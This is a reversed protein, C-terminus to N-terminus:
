VDVYYKGTKMAQVVLANAIVLDDHNTGNGRKNSLKNNLEIFIQMQQLTEKCNILIMGKEFQEKFDSIMIAKNATTTQWGLQLKRKGREDFIRQKYLNLYGHDKRLRELLPLGYSNRECCIFAYGYYKGLANVVEAFEYVPVKNNFFSAVQEGEANYIAITSYDGSGGSAVDIGGFYKGRKPLRFLFLSKGLYPKLLDPVDVIEDKPISPLLYNMRELIRTQEFVCQGTAVFAKIPMSPYEQNFEQESMDLMKWKAWMLQNLSVEGREYLKKDEGVLDTGRLRDKYRQMFWDVALDIEHRFQKRYASSFCGFFFPKYKSKGKEALQWLTFLENMGNATSELILKSNENKALSQECSLLVRNINNYFAIESLLIYEYTSGRGVDKNGAIVCSIRSNNAFLLETKNDRKIEPFLGQYKERPLNNNMTKLKEFISHSSEGKYSVVLYNTNPKVIAQWLCFAVSFTTMGLQRSKLIVTYKGFNKFLEKQQENLVFPVLDGNNDVIKIFNKAFLYFDGMVKKLKDKGTV